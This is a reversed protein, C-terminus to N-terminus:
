GLRVETDMRYGDQICPGSKPFYTGNPGISLAQMETQYRTPHYRDKQIYNNEKWDRIVCVGSKFPIVFEKAILIRFDDETCAVFSMIKRPAAVFGDDDARMGLHFYLCQAGVPLSLFRDTDVISLSFMRRQAM